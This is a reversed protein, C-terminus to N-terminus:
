VKQKGGERGSFATTLHLLIISPEQIHSEVYYMAM